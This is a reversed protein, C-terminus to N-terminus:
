ATNVEVPEDLSKYDILIHKHPTFHESAGSDLIWYAPNGGGGGGISAKRTMKATEAMTHFAVKAEEKISAM